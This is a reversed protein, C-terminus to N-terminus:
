TDSPPGLVTTGLIAMIAQAAIPRLERVDRHQEAASIILEHLGGVILTAMDKTLPHAGLQPQRRRGSEVLGVLLDAFRERTARERAAAEEGLAPLERTFSQWLAPRAVLAGLWADLADDVQQEWPTEPAVAAAVEAIVEDSAWEFLALFCAERGAFNEYFTRRSTRALRVVDGVFTERYGKEEISQAMAAILRERHSPATATAHM